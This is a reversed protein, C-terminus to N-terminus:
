KMRSRSMQVSSMPHLEADLSEQKKLESGHQQWWACLARSARASNAALRAITPWLWPRVAAFVIFRATHFQGRPSVFGAIAPIEFNAADSIAKVAGFEIGHAQASLAVAAAEMDVAQGGYAKALKAKQETSAIAPFSVLVGAGSGIEVRRGDQADIIRSPVFVDGVGLSGDLAGAFGVSLLQTPRYLAILAEAARRAAEPGVGGCIVVAQQSEFIKYRRADYERESHRWYKVLPRIERELAAVIAVRPASMDM